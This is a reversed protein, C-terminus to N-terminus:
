PILFLYILYCAVGCVGALMLGSLRRRKVFWILILGTLSVLTM